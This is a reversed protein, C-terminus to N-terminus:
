APITILFSNVKYKNILSYFVGQWYLFPLNDTYKNIQTQYINLLTALRASHLLVAMLFSDEEVVRAVRMPDHERAAKVEKGAAGIWVEMMVVM